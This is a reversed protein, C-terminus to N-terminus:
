DGALSPVLPGSRWWKEQQRLLIGRFFCRLHSPGTKMKYSSPVTDSYALVSSCSKFCSTVWDGGDPFMSVFAKARQIWHPVRQSQSHHWGCPTSIIAEFWRILIIGELYPLCAEDLQCNFDVVLTERNLIHILLCFPARPRMNYVCAAVAERQRSAKYSSVTLKLNCQLCM